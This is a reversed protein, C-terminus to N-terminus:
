RRGSRRPEDKRHLNATQRVFLGYCFCARIIPLADLSVLSCLSFRETPLDALERSLDALRLRQCSIQLYFVCFSRRCAFCPLSRFFLKWSRGTSVISKQLKDKFGMRCRWSSNDVPADLQNSSSYRLLKFICILHFFSTILISKSRKHQHYYYTKM